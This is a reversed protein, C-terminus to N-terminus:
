ENIVSFSKGAKWFIIDGTSGAPGDIGAGLSITLTAINTTAGAPSTSVTGVPVIQPWDMPFASSAPWLFPTFSTSDIDVTYTNTTSNFSLIEGTVGDLETMGFADPVKFRIVDGVEYTVAPENAASQVQTTLGTIVSTIGIWSNDWEFPPLKVVNFSVEATFNATNTDFFSLEFTNTTVNGISFLFGGIQPMNTLKSLLVTDGNSYGHNAVTCVPPTAKTITTGTKVGLNSSGETFGGTTLKLADIANAADQKKYEFGEGPNLGTYWEFKVGRGPTQTTGFQTENIVEMWEVGSRLEISKTKGESTFRGQQIITNDM